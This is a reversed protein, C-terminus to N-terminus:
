KSSVLITWHWDTLYKAPYVYENELIHMETVQLGSAVRAPVHVFEQIFHGLKQLLNDSARMKGVYLWPSFYM